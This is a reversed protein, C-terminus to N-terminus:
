EGFNWRIFLPWSKWFVTERRRSLSSSSGAAERPFERAVLEREQLRDVPGVASQHTIRLREALEGATVRERGPFGKIGPFALYQQPALEQEAAARESLHLFRRLEYRFAALKEYDSKTM